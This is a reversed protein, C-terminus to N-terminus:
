RDDSFTNKQDNASLAKTAQHLKLRLYERYNAPAPNEQLEEHTSPPNDGSAGRDSLMDPVGREVDIRVHDVDIDSVKTALDIAWETAM